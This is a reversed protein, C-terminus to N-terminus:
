YAYYKIWRTGGPAAQSLSVLQRKDWSFAFLDKSSISFITSTKSKFDYTLLYKSSQNETSQFLISIIDAEFNMGIPMLKEISPVNSPEMDQLADMLLTKLDIDLPVDGQTALLSQISLQWNEAQLLAYRDTAISYDLFLPKKGAPCPQCFTVPIPQDLVRILKGDTDGIAVFVQNDAFSIVPALYRDTDIPALNCQFTFSFVNYQEEYTNPYYQTIQDQQSSFRVFAGSYSILLENDLAVAGNYGKGPVEGPLQQVNITNKERNRQDIITLIKDAFTSYADQLALDSVIIFNGLQQLSTTQRWRDPIPIPISDIVQISGSKGGSPPGNRRAPSNETLYERDLQFKEEKCDIVFERIMEPHYLQVQRLQNISRTILNEGTLPTKRISERSAYIFLTKDTPYTNLLERYSELCDPCGTNPLICVRELHSNCNIDLSMINHFTLEHQDATCSIILTFFILRSGIRKLLNSFVM